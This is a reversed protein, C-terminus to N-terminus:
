TGKIWGFLMAACVGIILGVIVVPHQWMRVIVGIGVVIGLVALMQNQKM